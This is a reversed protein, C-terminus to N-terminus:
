NVVRINKMKHKIFERDEGIEVDDNQVRYDNKTLKGLFRDSLVETVVCERGCTHDGHKDMYDFRITEMVNIDKASYFRGKVKETITEVPSIGYGEFFKDLAYCTEDLAEKYDCVSEFKCVRVKCPENKPVCVVDKPNVKVIIAKSSSTAYKLNGVHLGEACPDDPNDCVENRPMEHVTGPVYYNYSGDKNEHGAQYGEYVYKYGLFCGDETIPLYENELFNYLQDVSRMSPNQMLNEIFKLMSKYHEDGANYCEIVRKTIVSHLVKGNYRVEGDVLEVKNTSNNEEIVNEITRKKNFTNIFAESDGNLYAAKVMDYNPHEPHVKYQVGGIIAILTKGVTLKAMEM